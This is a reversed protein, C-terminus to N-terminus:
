GPRWREGEYVSWSGLPASANKGTGTLASQQTDTHYMHTLMNSYLHKSHTFTQSSACLYQLDHEHKLCSDLLQEYKKKRKQKQKLKETLKFYKAPTSGEAESEQHSHSSRTSM